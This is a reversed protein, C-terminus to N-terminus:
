QIVVRKDFTVLLGLNGFLPATREYSVEIFWQDGDRAVQFEELTPFEVGEIDLRKEIARRVAGANVTEDKSEDAAQEAVKAVKFQTMYIPLVRIGAYVVIAMPVLLVLWGIFTIGAQRKHM